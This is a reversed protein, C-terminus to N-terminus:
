LLVHLLSVLFSAKVRVGEIQCDVMAVDDMSDEM